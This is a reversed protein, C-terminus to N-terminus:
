ILDAYQLRENVLEKHILRRRLKMYVASKKFEKFYIELKKNVVNMIYDFTTDNLEWFSIDIQSKIHTNRICLSRIEEDIDKVPKGKKRTIKRIVLLSFLEGIAEGDEFSEELYDMFTLYGLNCSLIMKLNKLCERTERNKILHTKDTKGITKMQLIFFWSSNRFLLIISIYFCREKFTDENLEGNLPLLLCHYAAMFIFYSIFVFILDFTTSINEYLWKLSKYASYLLCIEQVLSVVLTFCNLILLKAKFHDLLFAIPLALLTGVFINVVSLKIVTRV